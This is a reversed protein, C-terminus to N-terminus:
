TRVDVKHGASQSVPSETLGEGLRRIQEPPIECVVEGTRNNIVEYYIRRQDDIRLDTSLKPGAPEAHAGEADPAETRHAGGAARGRSPLTEAALDATGLAMVLQAPSISM